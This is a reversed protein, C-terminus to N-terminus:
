ERRRQWATVRITIRSVDQGQAELRGALERLTAAALRVDVLDKSTDIVVDEGVPPPPNRVRLLEDARRTLAILGDALMKNIEDATLLAALDALLQKASEGREADGVLAKVQRLVIWRADEILLQRNAAATTFNRAMAAISTTPTFSALERVLAAGERGALQRLLASCARATALRPAAEPDAWDRVKPELAGPL